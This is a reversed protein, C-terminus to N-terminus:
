AMYINFTAVMTWDGDAPSDQPSRMDFVGFSVNIDGNSASGSDLIATNINEPALSNNAVSELHVSGAAAVSFDASYSPLESSEFRVQAYTLSAPSQGITTITPQSATMGNLRQQDLTATDVDPELTVRGSWVGVGQPRGGGSPGTFFINPGDQPDTVLYHDGEPLSSPLETFPGRKLQFAPM